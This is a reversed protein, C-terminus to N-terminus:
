KSFRNFVYVFAGAWVLAKAGELALQVTLMCGLYLLYDAM